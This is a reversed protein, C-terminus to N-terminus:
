RHTSYQFSAPLRHVLDDLERNLLLQDDDPHIAVRLARGSRRAWALQVRNWYRLSWARLLTDAQFGNLPLRTMQGSATDIIGFTTEVLNYPTLRLRDKPVAGLAWAPPVYTAPMALGNHTFWQASNQMLEVIQDATLALHEAANRSILAAHLRHFLREIDAVHHHWGHAALEIGSQQWTRLLEIQPREWTRGPVVLITINSHGATRLRDIWHEVQTLTEPMVDHISILSRM